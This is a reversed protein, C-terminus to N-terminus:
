PIADLLNMVTIVTPNFYLPKLIFYIKSVFQAGKMAKPNDTGPLVSVIERDLWQTLTEESEGQNRKELFEGFSLLLDAAAANEVEGAQQKVYIIIREIDESSLNDFYSDAHVLFGPLNQLYISRFMLLLSLNYKSDSLSGWLQRFGKIFETLNEYFEKTETTVQQGFDDVSAKVEEFTPLDIGFSEMAKMTEDKIYHM